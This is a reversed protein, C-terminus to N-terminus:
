AVTASSGLPVYPPAQWRSNGPRLGRVPRLVRYGEADYCKVVTFANAVDLCEDTAALMVAASVRM